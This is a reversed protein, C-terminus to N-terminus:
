IFDKPKSRVSMSERPFEGSLPFFVCTFVTESIYSKDQGLDKLRKIIDTMREIKGKTDFKGAKARESLLAFVEDKTFELKSCEEVSGVDSKATVDERNVASSPVRLLEEEERLRRRRQREMEVYGAILMLVFLGGSVTHVRVRLVRVLKSWRRGQRQVLDIKKRRKERSCWCLLVGHFGFKLETEEGSSRM